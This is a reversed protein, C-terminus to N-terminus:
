QLAYRILLHINSKVLILKHQILAKLLKTIILVMKRKKSESFKVECYDFNTYLEEISIDDNLLGEDECIKMLLEKQTTPILVIEGTLVIVENNLSLKKFIPIAGISNIKDINIDLTDKRINEVIIVAKLKDKLAVKENQIIEEVSKLKGINEMIIESIDKTYKLCVKNDVIAGLEILQNKITKLGKYSKKDKFFVYTLVNEIDTISLTYKNIKSKHYRSIEINKLQLIKLIAIYYEFNELIYETNDNPRLIM